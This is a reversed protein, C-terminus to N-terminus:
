LCLSFDPLRTVSGHRAANYLEYKAMRDATNMTAAEVRGLYRIADSGDEFALALCMANLALSEGLANVLSDDSLDVFLTDQIGKAVNFLASKQEITIPELAILQAVDDRVGDQNGDVGKLTDSYDLKPLKNTRELKEIAKQVTDVAEDKVIVTFTETDRQGESDVVAVSFNVEVDETVESAEIVGVGDVASFDISVTDPVSWELEYTLAADVNVSPVISLSDLELVEYTDDLHIEPSDYTDDSIGGVDVDEGGCAILLVFLPSVMLLPKIKLM